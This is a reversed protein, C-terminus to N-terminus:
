KILWEGSMHSEVKSRALRSLEAWEKGTLEAVDAVGILNRALNSAEGIFDDYFPDESTAALLYGDSTISLGTIQPDTWEEGLIYALMASFKPSVRVSKIKSVLSM